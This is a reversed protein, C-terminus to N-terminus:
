VQRGRGRVASGDDLDPHRPPSALAARRDLHGRGRARLRRSRHAPLQLQRGVRGDSRGDFAAFTRDFETTIREREIAEAPWPELFAHADVDALATLEDPGIARIPYTQTM